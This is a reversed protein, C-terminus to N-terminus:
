NVALSLRLPDAQLNAFRNEFVITQPTAGNGYYAQNLDNRRALVAGELSVGAYVGM